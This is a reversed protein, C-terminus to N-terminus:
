EEPLIKVLDSFLDVPDIKLARCIQCFEVLDLRYQLNELRSVWSQHRKVLHALDEQHLGSREREERLRGVILRNAETFITKTM